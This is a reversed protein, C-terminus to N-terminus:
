VCVELAGNGSGAISESPALSEPDILEPLLCEVEKMAAGSRVTYIEVEVGNVTRM